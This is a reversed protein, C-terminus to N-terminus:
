RLAFGQQDFAGDTEVFDRGEAVAGGAVDVGASCLPLTDCGFLLFFTPCNFTISIYVEEMERNNFTVAFISDEVEGVRIASMGCGRILNSGGESGIKLGNECRGYGM